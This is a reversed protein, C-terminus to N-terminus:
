QMLILTFFGIKIENINKAYRVPMRQLATLLVNSQQAFITPELGRM